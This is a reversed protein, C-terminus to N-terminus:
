KLDDMIRTAMFKRYFEDTEKIILSAQKHSVKLRSELWCILIEEDLGYTKMINIGEIVKKLRDGFIQIKDRM